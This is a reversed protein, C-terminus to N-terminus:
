TRNSKIQDVQDPRVDIQESHGSDVESAEPPAGRAGSVTEATETSAPRRGGVRNLPVTATTDGV